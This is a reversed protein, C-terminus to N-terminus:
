RRSTAFPTTSTARRPTPTTRARWTDADMRRRGTGGAVAPRRRRAGLGPLESLEHGDRRTDHARSHRQRRQLHLHVRRRAADDCPQVAMGHQGRRGQQAAADRTLTVYSIVSGLVAACEIAFFLWGAAFDVPSDLPPITVTARWYLYRVTLALVIAIPLVRWESDRDLWPM